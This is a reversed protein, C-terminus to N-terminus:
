LDGNGFGAAYERALEHYRAQRVTNAITTLNNWVAMIPPLTSGEHKNYFVPTQTIASDGEQTWGVAPLAHTKVDRVAQRSNYDTTADLWKETESEATVVMGGIINGGEYLRLNYRTVIGFNNGGGKQAKFLDPNSRQSATVLRGDALVMEFSHVGDTSFGVENALFSFGAGLLLGTGVPYFRGGTFVKNKSDVFQYLDGWVKGPQVSVVEVGDMRSISAAKMNDFSILVGKDVNAAGPVANHGGGKAAFKCKEKVFIKVAKSM